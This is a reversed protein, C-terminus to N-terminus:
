TGTAPRLRKEVLWSRSPHYQMAHLTAHDHEIWLEVEQLKELAAEPVLIKSGNFITAWAHNACARRGRRIRRQALAPDVHVRWGEIEKVIPNFPADASARRELLQVFGSAILASNFLLTTAKM